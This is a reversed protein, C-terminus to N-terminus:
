NSKKQAVYDYLENVTKLKKYDDVPLKIKYNDEITAIIAMGTLSDYSKINRFEVDYDLHIDEEDIFQEKIKQLFESHEM